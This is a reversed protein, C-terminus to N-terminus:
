SMNKSGSKSFTQIKKFGNNQFNPGDLTQSKVYARLVVKISRPSVRTLRGRLKIYLYNGISDYKKKQNHYQKIVSCISSSLKGQLRNLTTNCLLDPSIKRDSSRLSPASSRLSRTGICAYDSCSQVEM